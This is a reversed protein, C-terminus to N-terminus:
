GRTIKRYIMAILLGFLVYSVGLHSIALLHALIGAKSDPNVVIAVGNSEPDNLQVQIMALIVQSWIQLFIRWGHRSLSSTYGNAVAYVATFLLSSIVAGLTWWVLSTSIRLLLCKVGQSLSCGPLWKLWRMNLWKMNLLSQVNAEEAADFQEGNKYQIRLEAWFQSLFMRKVQEKNKAGHEYLADLTQKIDKKREKTELSHSIGPFSVEAAVEHKHLALLAELATTKSMGLLLEYAEMALLAGILHASPDANCRISNKLLAEAMALNSYPAGHRVKSGDSRVAEIRATISKQKKKDNQSDVLFPKLDYITGIPKKFGLYEIKNNKVRQGTKKNRLVKLNTNDSVVSSVACVRWAEGIKNGPSTYGEKACDRTEEKNWLCSCIDMLLERPSKGNQIRLESADPVDPFRLDIDRLVVVDRSYCKKNVWLPFDDFEGFTTVVWSRRGFKWATYANLLTFEHEEDIAVCVNKLRDLLAAPQSNTNSGDDNSGFVTGLFRNKVLTRLGTPDFWCRMGRAFRALTSVIGDGNDLPSVFHLPVQFAQLLKCMEIDANKPKHLTCLENCLQHFGRWRNNSTNRWTPEVVKDNGSVKTEATKKAEDKKVPVSPSLFMPFVQPYRLLLEVAVGARKKTVHWRQDESAAPRFANDLETGVDLAVLTDALEMPDFKDLADFLAEASDYARVNENGVKYEDGDPCIELKLGLAKCEGELREQLAYAMVPSTTAVLVIPRAM